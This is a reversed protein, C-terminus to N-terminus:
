WSLMESKVSLKGIKKVEEDIANIIDAHSIKRGETAAYYSASVAASKILSGTLDEVKAYVEFNVDDDLPAEKPFAKEWLMRREEENPKEVPVFFTMRRKFAADFNTVINTALVSVGDYEEIKQLLYATQANSHKDNSSSVETRKAFLSDAEDFFLIVNSNKAADFIKGINKSTEGIYKNEIQSLDIRYIDLGLERAFVQAAMTKGTGPPGYFVISTGSGYPLKKGFGFQGNVVSRLRVRNMALTLQREGEKTLQLDQWMFPCNLKTAYEGFAQQSAARIEREICEKGIYFLDGEVRSFLRALALTKKIRGPAMKYKSVLHDLNIDEEFCLHLEKAFIEWFKRQKTSDPYDVTICYMQNRLPYNSDPCHRGNILFLSLNDHLFVLDNLLEIAGEPESPFNKLCLLEQEFLCRRVIELIIQKRDSSPISLLRDAYVFLVDYDMARGLQEVLFSKGLGEEGELFIMSEDERNASLSGIGAFAQFLRDEEVRPIVIRSDDGTATEKTYASLMELSAQQGLAKQFAQHSLFLPRSLGFLPKGEDLLIRNLYSGKDLLLSVSNEEETLFLSCFDHVLGVTPAVVGPQEQLVDFVREYKRNKLVSFALLFAIGEVPSLLGVNLFDWLPLHNKSDTLEEGALMLSRYINRMTQWEPFRQKKHPKLVEVLEEDGPLCGIREVQSPTDSTKQMLLIMACLDIFSTWSDWQADASTFSAVKDGEPFYMNILHKFDTNKTTMNKEDEYEIERQM